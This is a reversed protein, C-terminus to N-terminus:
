SRAGAAAIRADVAGEFDSIQGTFIGTIESGDCYLSDLVVLTGQVTTVGAAFTKEGTITEDSALDM